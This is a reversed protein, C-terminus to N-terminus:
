YYNIFEATEVVKSVVRRLHQVYLMKPTEFMGQGGQM